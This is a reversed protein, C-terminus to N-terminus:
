LHRGADVTIISGTTHRLHTVAALVTLAVDDPETVKKLPTSQAMKELQERGRGAVFGTDVAGPSVAVVRIEPGLARALAKTMADVAAKSACYGVNSGNGTFAAISSINVVVSAEGAAVGSRKLLPALARITAFPGRVNSILIRDLLADDLAELDAHPIPRTFGASNVLVDCRGYASEVEAAMQRLAGTDEMPMRIARHRGKPLEAILAKARDEGANYGIAVSAGGAALRRVTAAGIGNSGGTVVAVKGSLSSNPDYM